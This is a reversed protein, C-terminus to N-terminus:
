IQENTKDLFDDVPDKKKYQIFQAEPRKVIMSIKTGPTKYEQEAQGPEWQSLEWLNKLRQLFHM